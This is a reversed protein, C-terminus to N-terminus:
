FFKNLTDRLDNVAISASEIAEELDLLPRNVNSLDNDLLRVVEIPNLRKLENEATEIDGAIKMFKRAWDKAKNTSAAKASRRGGESFSLALVDDLILEAAELINFYLKESNVGSQQHKDLYAANKSQRFFHEDDIRTGIDVDEPGFGEQKAYAKVLRKLEPDRALENISPVRSSAAKASRRGRSKM